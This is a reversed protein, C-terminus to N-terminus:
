IPGVGLRLFASLSLNLAPHVPKFTWEEALSSVVPIDSGVNEEDGNLGKHLLSLGSISLYTHM